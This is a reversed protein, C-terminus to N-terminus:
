LNEGIDDFYWPPNESTDSLNPSAYLGLSVRRVGFLIHVCWACGKQSKLFFDNKQDVFLCCKSSFIKTQAKHTCISTQLAGFQKLRFTQLSFITKCVKSVNWQLFSMGIRSNSTPYKELKKLTKLCYKEYVRGCSMPFRRCELSLWAFKVLSPFQRCRWDFLM